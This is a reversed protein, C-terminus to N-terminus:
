RASQCITPAAREHCQDASLVLWWHKLHHDVFAQNLYESAWCRKAREREKRGYHPQYKSPSRM